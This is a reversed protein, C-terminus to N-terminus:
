RVCGKALAFAEANVADSARMPAWMSAPMGFRAMRSSLGATICRTTYTHTSTM